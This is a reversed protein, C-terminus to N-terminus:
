AGKIRGLLLVLTKYVKVERLGFSEVKLVAAGIEFVLLCRRRYGKGLAVVRFM